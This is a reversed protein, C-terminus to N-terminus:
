NEGLIEFQREARNGRSDTITLVHTGPSPRASIQHYNRTQGLYEGDVDWYLTEDPDRHTAEMILSGEKGDIEVPIFVRADSEPFVIALDSQASSGNAGPIWPPLPHYSLSHKMYWYEYVPPLVFRNRVVPMSGKWKEALDNATAQYAGDPTLSVSRCWPCPMGSPAGAPKWAATVEDCRPGALYGSEACVAVERLDAEPRAPWASRPLFSFIDFLVPAATSISKLEPRGEGSANGVWVGVTYEPTTGIAWADRNGYSTGTKWAIKRASAFSQWLAEDDPRSGNVLAELTLWSAGSSVPFDRAEGDEARNMLRAYAHVAEDLTIEGGGLILPLGYEDATRDLTTFGSKSLLELFPAIGFERLERIAPINLSRSLAEDAPVVGQYVPLNNEPKYSGIRTPIDPILQHPLILGADLMGAYLFPKLVSGSSRRSVIIDVDTNHREARNAGTNGAYALIEGTRTDIVIGAANHIGSADFQTSWRELTAVLSQQLKRDITTKAQGEKKMRELYHPALRPLPYPEEPLKEALSLKLMKDDIFGRRGLERLLRNRKELLRDRRAGPHVLSPQNPLVALTAAEAWTLSDAPRNYYRWSAAELGVVNGGFPANAAYLGLIERKTCRIELVFALLAERIKETITREPNNRSLRVVQMTLTSGGSVIRNGSANQAAARAISFPNVGPHIWFCRDEFTIIATGVKSPVSGAPLRWQGDASVSAGLLKGERDYIAFSLPKDFKPTLQLFLAFLAAALALSVAAARALVSRRTAAGGSIRLENM